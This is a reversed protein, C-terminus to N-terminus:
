NRGQLWPKVWIAREKRRRKNNKERKIVVAIAVAEVLTTELQLDVIFIIKLLKEMRKIPHTYVCIKMWKFPHFYIKWKFTGNLHITYNLTVHPIVDYIISIITALFAKLYVGKFWLCRSLLVVFSGKM